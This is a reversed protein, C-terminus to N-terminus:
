FPQSILFLFCVKLFIYSVLWWQLTLRHSFMRPAIGSKEAQRTDHRSLMLLGERANPKVKQETSSNQLCKIAEGESRRREEKARGESRLLSPLM